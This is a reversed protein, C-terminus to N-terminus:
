RSSRHVAKCSYDEQQSSDEAVRASIVGDLETCGGAGFYLRMGSDAAQQPLSNVTGTARPLFSAPRFQATGRAAETTCAAM